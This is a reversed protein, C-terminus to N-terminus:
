SPNNRLWDNAFDLLQVGKEIGISVFDAVLDGDLHIVENEPISSLIPHRKLLKATERNMRGADHVIANRCASLWRLREDGFIAQIVNKSDKFVKLYADSTENRRDFNWKDKLLTGMNRRVEFDPERLMWIPFQFKVKRKKEATEDDDDAEPEAGCAVFGLRVRANLCAIWVDEALVEFATWSGIVTSALMSQIAALVHKAQLPDGEHWNDILTNFNRAANTDAVDLSAPDAQFKAWRDEMFTRQWEALKAEDDPTLPGSIPLKLFIRGVPATYGYMTAAMTINKPLSLPATARNMNAVFNNSAERLEACIRGTVRDFDHPFNVANEFKITESPEM